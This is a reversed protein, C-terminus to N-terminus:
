SLTVNGAVTDSLKKNSGTKRKKGFFLNSPSFRPIIGNGCTSRCVNVTQRCKSCIGIVHKHQGTCLADGEQKEGCCVFFGRTIVDFEEKICFCIVSLWIFYKSVAIM